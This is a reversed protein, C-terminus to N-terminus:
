NDNFNEIYWDKKNELIIQRPPCLIINQNSTLCWQTFGCGTIQKNLICPFDPLSFENWDSLFNIGKPVIIQQKNM